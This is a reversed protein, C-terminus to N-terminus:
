KKPGRLGSEGLIYVWMILALHKAFIMSNMKLCSPNISCAMCVFSVLYLKSMPTIFLM